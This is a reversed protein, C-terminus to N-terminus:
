KHPVNGSRKSRNYSRYDDLPIAVLPECLTDINPIRFRIYKISLGRQLWQAEYYTKIDTIRDTNESNYLDDTIYDLPLNNAQIMLRTYNFLFASDTKLHVSGNPVLFRAYRAIFNTSTLRKSVKKMQPDPFTLWIESVENSAFCNQIFEIRTRLFAVNPLAQNLAQTAGTWMRAGKIDVGIYNRQPFMRALGITYEGKGCGLELVIPHHNKFFVEGWKGQM